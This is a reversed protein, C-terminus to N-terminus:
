EGIRDNSQSWSYFKCQRMLPVPKKVPPTRTEQDCDCYGLRTRVCVVFNLTLGGLEVLRVGLVGGVYTLAWALARYCVSRARMLTGVNEEMRNPVRAASQATLTATDRSCVTWISHKWSM